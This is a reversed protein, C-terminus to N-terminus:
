QSRILEAYLGEQSRLQEHTGRQVIRGRDLVIIEDVDRITSLRHAVIVCSCGRRRLNDDVLKETQPDLASTAEDLVLLSPHEVLARAIELRQRQGGSFNGGGEEVQSWYAGPRAVIDEHICADKAARIVDSQSATPDWMTLNDWISGAFLFVEQNVMAVSNTIVRRPISALPRGDLRIEGTWPAYLGTILKALTSKGSGTGGVLAVRGGPRLTLSFDEILPPATPTYGFSLHEIDLRGELKLPGEITEIAAQQVGAFEVDPPNVLVDDLRNIDAHSEQLSSGLRVFSAFPKMFRTMLLQFAMLIGITINGDMVLLAGVALIAVRNLSSLTTPLTSLVQSSVSLKQQSNVLNAQYGTWQSFYDSELGSAKLTEIMQLGYMTVGMIKGREQQLRSNLNKRHNSVLKLALLNVSAFAIGLLTLLVSYQLMVLAYLLVTLMNVVTPMLDSSLLNAVTDNSQVRSAIDGALRQSFFPIPLRLVHYFFRSSGSLAIRMNTRLLFYQKLWVLAMDLLATLLMAVLLPRLWSHLGRILIDDIFIKSFMPYALGPVVLLLGALVVLAMAGHCGAFRLALSRLLNPKQGGKQFEPGPEFTMVIGTFSENFEEMPVKRPGAAPDNLYAVDGKIGEFVVFHNFNWFLISPLSLGRLAQTEKRFGNSILGYRRAAKVINSAKSGDRSVGCESRLVELPVYRGHYALIMALSAAGCEVAEMQLVTPTKVRKARRTQSTESMFWEM